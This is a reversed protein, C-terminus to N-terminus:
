RTVKNLAARVGSLDTVGQGQTIVRNNRDLVAVLPMTWTSGVRIGLPSLARALSGSAWPRVFVPAFSAGHKSLFNPVRHANNAEDTSFVLFDIGRRQYDKALAVFDPFMQRSLPCNTAYLMVVSPRGTRQGIRRAVDAVDVADLGVVNEGTQSMASTSSLLIGLTFVIFLNRRWIAM